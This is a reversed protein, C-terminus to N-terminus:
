PKKTTKTETEKVNALLYKIFHVGSKPLFVSHSGHFERVYHNCLQVDDCM